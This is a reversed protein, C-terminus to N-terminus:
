TAVLQPGDPFWYTVTKYPSSTVDHVQKAVFAAGGALVLLVPAVLWMMRGRRKGPAEETLGEDASAAGSADDDAM